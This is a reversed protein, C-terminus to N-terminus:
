DSSWDNIFILDQFLVKPFGGFLSSASIQHRFVSRVTQDKLLQSCHELFLKQAKYVRELKLCKWCTTKEDSHDHQSLDTIWYESDGYDMCKTNVFYTAGTTKHRFRNICYKHLSGEKIDFKLCLKNEEKFLLLDAM